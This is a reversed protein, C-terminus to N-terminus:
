IVYCHLWSSADLLALKIYDIDLDDMSIDGISKMMDTIERNKFYRMFMVMANTYERMFADMVKIKNSEFLSRGSMLQMYMKATLVVDVLGDHSSYIKIKNDRGIIASLIEHNDKFEEYEFAIYLSSCSGNIETHKHIDYRRMQCQYFKIAAYRNDSWVYDAVHNAPSSYLPNRIMQITYKM